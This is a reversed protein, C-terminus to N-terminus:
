GVVSWSLLLNLSMVVLVLVAFAQPTDPSRDLVVYVAGMIAAWCALSLLFSEWGVYCWPSLPIFQIGSEAHPLFQLLVAAAVLMAALIWLPGGQEQQNATHVMVVISAIVLGWVARYGGITWHDTGRLATPWPIKTNWRSTPKKTTPLSSEPSAQSPESNLDGEVIIAFNRNGDIEITRRQDGVMAFNAIGSVKVGKETAETVPPQEPEPSPASVEERDPLVDVAVNTHHAASEGGTSRETSVDVRASCGTSLLLVLLIPTAALLRQLDQLLREAQSRTFGLNCPQWRDPNRLTLVVVEEGTHDHHAVTSALYEVPSYNFHIQHM